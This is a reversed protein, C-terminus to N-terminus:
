ESNANQIELLGDIEGLIKRLWTRTKPGTLPSCLLQLLAERQEDLTDAVSKACSPSPCM